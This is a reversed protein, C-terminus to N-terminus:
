LMQKNDYNKVKLILIVNKEVEWNRSVFLLPLGLSIAVGERLGACDEYKGTSVADAEAKERKTRGGSM